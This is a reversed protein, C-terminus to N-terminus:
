MQHILERLLISGFLLMAERRCLGAFGLRILRFVFPKELPHRKARRHCIPQNMPALLLNRFALNGLRDVHTRPPQQNKRFLSQHRAM